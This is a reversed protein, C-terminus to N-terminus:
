TILKKVWDSFVITLLLAMFIVAIWIGAALGLILANLIWEAINFVLM